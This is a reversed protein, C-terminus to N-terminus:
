PLSEVFKFQDWFQLKTNPVSYIYKFDSSDLGFIDKISSVNVLNGYETAVLNLWKLSELDIETCSLTFCRVREVKILSAASRAAQTCVQMAANVKVNFIKFKTLGALWRYCCCRESCPTPCPVRSPTYVWSRLSIIAALKRWAKWTGSAIKNVHALNHPACSNSFRTWARRNSLTQGHIICICIIEKLRHDIATSQPKGSLGYTISILLLQPWHCTPTSSKFWNSAM